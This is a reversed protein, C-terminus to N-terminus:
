AITKCCSASSPNDNKRSYLSAGAWTAFSTMGVTLYSCTIPPHLSSRPLSEETAGLPLLLLMLCLCFYLFNWKLTLVSTVILTILCRVVNGPFTTTDRDKFINSVQYKFSQIVQELQGQCLCPTQVLYTWISRGVETMRHNWLVSM